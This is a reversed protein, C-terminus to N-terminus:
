QKQGILLKHKNAKTLFLSPIKPLPIQELILIFFVKLLGTPMVESIEAFQTNAQCCKEATEVALEYNDVFARYLGLQSAQLFLFCLSDNGSMCRKTKTAWTHHVKFSYSTFQLSKHTYGLHCNGSRAVLSVIMLSHSARMSEGHHCPASLRSLTKAAPSAPGNSHTAISCVTTAM